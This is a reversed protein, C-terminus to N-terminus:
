LVIINTDQQSATVASLISIRELQLTNSYRDDFLIPNPM